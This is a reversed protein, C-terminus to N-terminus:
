RNVTYVMEKCFKANRRSSFPLHCSAGAYSTVKMKLVYPVPGFISLRNLMPPFVLSIVFASKSSKAFCFSILFALAIIFWTASAMLYKLRYAVSYPILWGHHLMM